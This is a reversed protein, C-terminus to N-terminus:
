AVGFGEGGGRAKRRVATVRERLGRLLLPVLIALTPAEVTQVFTTAALKHVCDPVEAPRAICSVLVPIFQAIDQNGVTNAVASVAAMAAEKVQPKADAVTYSVAPMVDPVAIALQRARSTCLEGIAQLATVKTQWALKADTAALLHPLVSRVAWPTVGALFAAVAEGAADRVSAAKDGALLLLTPLAAVAAPEAM